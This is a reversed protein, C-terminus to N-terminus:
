MLLAGNFFFFGRIPQNKNSERLELCHNFHDTKPTPTKLRLQLVKSFIELERDSFVQFFHLFKWITPQQALNICVTSTVM